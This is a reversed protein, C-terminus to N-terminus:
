GDGGVTSLSVNKGKKKKVMLNMILVLRNVGRSSSYEMSKGVDPRRGESSTKESETMQNEAMADKIKGPSEHFHTKFLFTASLTRPVLFILHRVNKQGSSKQVGNL